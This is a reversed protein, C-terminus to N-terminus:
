LSTKLVSQKIYFYASDIIGQILHVQSQSFDNSSIYKLTDRLILIVITMDKSFKISVSKMWNELDNIYKEVLSYIIKVNNIDISIDEIICEEIKGKNFKYTRLMSSSIDAIEKEKLGGMPRYSSRLPEIIKDKKDKRRKRVLKNESQLINHLELLSEGDKSSYMYEFLSKDKILYNIQYYHGLEHYLITSHDLMGFPAKVEALGFEDYKRSGDNRFLRERNEHTVMRANRYLTISDTKPDYVGGKNYQDKDLLYVTISPKSSTILNAIPDDEGIEKIISECLKDIYSQDADCVLKRQLPLKLSFNLYHTNKRHLPTIIRSTSTIHQRAAYM